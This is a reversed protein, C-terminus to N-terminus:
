TGLSFGYASKHARDKFKGIFKANQLHFNIEEVHFM